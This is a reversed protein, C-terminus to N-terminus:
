FLARLIGSSSSTLISGSISLESSLTRLTPETRVEFFIFAEFCGLLKRELVRLIEGKSRSIWLLDLSVLSLVKFACATM